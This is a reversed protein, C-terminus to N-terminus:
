EVIKRFVAGWVFYRFVTGSVTAGHRHMWDVAIRRDFRNWFKKMKNKWKWTEPKEMAYRVTKAEHGNRRIKVNGNEYVSENNKRQHINGNGNRNVSIVSSNNCPLSVDPLWVWLRETVQGIGWGACWRSFILCQTFVYRFHIFKAGICSVQVEYSLRRVLLNNSWLVYSCLNMIRFSFMSSQSHAM